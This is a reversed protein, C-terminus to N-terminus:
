SPVVSSKSCATAQHVPHCGGSSQLGICLTMSCRYQIRRMTVCYTCEFGWWYPGLWCLRLPARFRVVNGFVARCSIGSLALGGISSRAGQSPVQHLSRFCSVLIGNLPLVNAMNCPILILVSKARYRPYQTRLRSALFRTIKQACPKAAFHPPFWIRWM